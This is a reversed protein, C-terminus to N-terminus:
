CTQLALHRFQDMTVRAWAGRRAQDPHMGVVVSCSRLLARLESLHEAPLGAAQSNRGGTLSVSAVRVGGRSRMNCAPACVQESLQEVPPRGTPGADTATQGAPAGAGAPGDLLAPGFLCQFQRPM